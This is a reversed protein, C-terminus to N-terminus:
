HTLQEPTPAPIQDTAHLTSNIPLQAAPPQVPQPIQPYDRRSAGRPARLISSAILREVWGCDQPMFPSETSLLTCRLTGTSATAAWSDRQGAGWRSCCPPQAINLGYSHTGPRLAANSIIVVQLSPCACVAPMLGPAWCVMHVM